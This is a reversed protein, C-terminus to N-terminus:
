MTNTKLANTIERQEIQKKQPLFFDLIFTRKENVKIKGFLIIIKM